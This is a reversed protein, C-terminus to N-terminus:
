RRAMIQTVRGTVNGTANGASNDLLYCDSTQTPLLASLIYSM